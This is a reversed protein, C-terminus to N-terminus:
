YGKDFKTQLYNAEMTRDIVGNISDIISYSDISFKQKLSKTEISIISNPNTVDYVQNYM